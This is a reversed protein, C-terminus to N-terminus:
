RPEALALREYNIAALGLRAAIEKAGIDEVVRLGHNALLDALEDPRLHTVWPEGSRGALTSVVQGLGIVEPDWSSPPPIYSLSISCPPLAGVTANIAELSLYPIVGLWSVFTSASADYGMAALGERYSDAEFDVPVWVLEDPAIVGLSTLRARKWGQTAPHDVEFVRHSGEQRWAYTDLGAGLVVYQSAGSAALWDETIRSRAALWTATPIETGAPIAGRLSQSLVEAEPGILPWALSDALVARPGHHFLHLARGVAVMRATVSPAAEM